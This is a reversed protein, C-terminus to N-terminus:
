GAQGDALLQEVARLLPETPLGLVNTYSGEIRAVWALGLWDQIGYGGAKDFPARGRIYYDIDRANLRAFEVRTQSAFSREIGRYALAVGTTVMHWRGSLAELLAHADDPTHPRHLVRGELEVVTDAALLINGKESCPPLSRIGRLKARATSMAYETWPAREAITREDAQSAVQMYNFGLRQLLEARRPSRSALLIPPYDMYPTTDRPLVLSAM